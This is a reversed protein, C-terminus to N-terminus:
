PQRKLRVEGLEKSEGAKLAFPKYLYQGLFPQPGFRAQHRRGAVIGEIRFRGQSDTKVKAPSSDYLGDTELRVVGGAVPEGDQDLVRGSVSGCPELRVTLPEKVEGKLVLFAGLKREKDVFFLYRTRRPNVGKVTFTDDRLPQYAIGPVLNYAIAGAFPQGDPGLVKGHLSKAPELAVDRTFTQEKEGPNILLLHHFQSQAMASFGNESAQTHLTDENGHDQNDKFLEKLEARTVLAPMFTEKPSEARFGLVGPGAVVVLAYSGDSGTETRSCPVIGPGSPGFSRVALPNPYLPNYEVRAGAIPKGTERHTVRGKVLIGSVLDITAEM